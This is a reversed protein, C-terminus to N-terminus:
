NVTYGNEFDYSKHFVRSGKKTFWVTDRLNNLFHGHYGCHSPSNVYRYVYSDNSTPTGDGVYIRLTQNPKLTVDQVDYRNCTNGKTNHGWDDELVFGELNADSKGVNKIDVFEKNRNFRTDNGRANYGIQTIELDESDVTANANGNTFAIFALSLVALAIGSLAKRM